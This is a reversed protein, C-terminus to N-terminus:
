SPLAARGAHKILALCVQLMWERRVVTGTCTVWLLIAVDLPCALLAVAHLAAPRCHLQVTPVGECPSAFSAHVACAM